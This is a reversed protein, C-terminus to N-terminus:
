SREFGVSPYYTAVTTPAVRYSRGISTLAKAKPSQEPHDATLYRIILNTDIALM